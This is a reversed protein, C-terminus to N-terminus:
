TYKIELSKCIYIPYLWKLWYIYFRRAIFRSDNVKIPLVAMYFIGDSDIIVFLTIFPLIFENGENIIFFVM